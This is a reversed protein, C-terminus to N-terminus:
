DGHGSHGGDESMAEDEAPVGGAKSPSGYWDTRWANLEDIEKAQGDIIAQAIKQADADQGRALEVWAMRIAGQHHPVMMDIFERDFPKADRLMGAHMDTGMM